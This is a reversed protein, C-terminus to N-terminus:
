GRPYEPILRLTFSTYYYSSADIIAKSCWFHTVQFTSPITPGHPRVANANEKNVLRASLSHGSSRRIPKTGNHQSGMVKEQNFLFVVTLYGGLLDVM